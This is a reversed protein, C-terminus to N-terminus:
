RVPVNARKAAKLEEKLAVAEGMARMVEDDSTKPNLVDVGFHQQEHTWAAFATSSAHKCGPKARCRWEPGNTTNVLQALEPRKHQMKVWMEENEVDILFTEHYGVSGGSELDTHYSVIYKGPDFDKAYSRTADLQEVLTHGPLAEIRITTKTPMGFQPHGKLVKVSM